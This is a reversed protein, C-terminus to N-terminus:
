VKFADLASFPNSQEPQVHLTDGIVDKYDQPTIPTSPIQNSQYSMYFTDLFVGPNQLCM